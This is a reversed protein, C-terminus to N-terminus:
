WNLRSTLFETYFSEGLILYHKLRFRNESDVEAIWKSNEIEYFASNPCIKDELWKEIFEDMHTELKGITDGNEDLGFVGSWDFQERMRQKEANNNPAFRCWGSPFTVKLMRYFTQNIYDLDEQSIENELSEEYLISERKSYAIFTLESDTEEDTMSITFGGPIAMWDFKLAVVKQKKM